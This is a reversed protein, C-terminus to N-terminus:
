SDNIIVSRQIMSFGKSKQMTEYHPTTTKIKINKYDQLEKSLLQAITIPTTSDITSSGPINLFVTDAKKLNFENGFGTRILRLLRDIVELRTYSTFNGLIYIENDSLNLEHDYICPADGNKYITNGTRFVVDASQAAEIKPESAPTENEKTLKVKLKEKARIMNIFLILESRILSQDQRADTILINFNKKYKEDSVTYERIINNLKEDNTKLISLLNCPNKYTENYEKYQKKDALLQMNCSMNRFQESQMIIIYTLLLTKFLKSSDHDATLGSNIKLDLIILFPYGNERIFALFDKKLFSLSGEENMRQKLLTLSSLSCNEDYHDLNTSSLIGNFLQTLNEYDTLILAKNSISNTM